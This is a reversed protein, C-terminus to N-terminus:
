FMIYLKCTRNINPKKFELLGELQNHKNQPKSYTHLSKDDWAVTSLSVTHVNRCAFVPAYPTPTAYRQPLLFNPQVNGIPTLFKTLFRCNNLHPLVVTHQACTRVTFQVNHHVSLLHSHRFILLIASEM